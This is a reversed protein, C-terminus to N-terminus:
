MVIDIHRAACAAQLAAQGDVGFPNSSICIHAGRTMAGRNLAAAIAAAGVDGIHNGWLELDCLRPLADTMAEVLVTAGCDGIRNGGM